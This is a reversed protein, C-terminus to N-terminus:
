KPAVNLRSPRPGFSRTLERSECDLVWATEGSLLLFEGKSLGVVPRGKEWQSHGDAARLAATAQLGNETLNWLTYGSQGSSLLCKSQHDFTIRDITEPSRDSNSLQAFHELEGESSWIQVTGFRGPVGATAIKGSHSCAVAKLSPEPDRSSGVQRIFTADWQGPTRPDKDVDWAVLYGKSSAGVIRDSSSCWALDEWSDQLEEYRLQGLVAKSRLPESRHSRILGRWSPGFSTTVFDKLVIERQFDREVFTFVDLLFLEAFHSGAVVLNRGKDKFAAAATISPKDEFIIRYNLISTLKREGRYIM